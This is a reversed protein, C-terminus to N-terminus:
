PCRGYYNRYVIVGDKVAVVLHLSGLWGPLVWQVYSDAGEGVEPGNNERAIPTREPASGMVICAEDLIMGVKVQESKQRFQGDDALTQVDWILWCIFLSGGIVILLGVQFSIIKRIMAETSGAM